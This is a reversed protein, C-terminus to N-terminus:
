KGIIDLTPIIEGKIEIPIIGFTLNTNNSPSMEVTYTGNQLATSVVFQGMSNTKLARVTDGRSNKIMLLLDSLLKGESDRVVGTVINPKNTLFPLQTKIKQIYADGTSVNEKENLKKQLDQVQSRLESYSSAIEGKQSELKRLLEEQASTEISMSKGKEIQQRLNQIEGSLEENQKKLQEVVERAEKDVEPPAVDQKTVRIKDLPLGEEVRIKELLDRLKTAKEELDTRVEISESTELVKEGRIPLTIQGQSPVLNIFRRGSHMDPTISSYGKYELKLDPVESQYSSGASSIESRRIILKNQTAGEDIVVDKREQIKPTIPETQEKEIKEEEIDDTPVEPLPLEQASTDLVIEPESLSVGVQSTKPMDPYMERVKKIYAEEPIDLPDDKVDDTKFKLYEELKRRSSTPALTIMEQQVVALNDYMFATPVQPEKKWIRQTPSNIARFFNVLWEDLGREQVPVFALSLAFLALFIVTPWKFLGPILLYSFYAGLGLVALYSFQRMTLDGILKFEVDMINQPVAHQRNSQPLEAIPM